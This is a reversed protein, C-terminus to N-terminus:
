LRIKLVFSCLFPETIHITQPAYSLKFLMASIELGCVGFAKGDSDILPVSCLMIKDSTGPLVSPPIWPITSLPIFGTRHHRFRLHYYPADTIDFEMEWQAHLSPPKKTCHKSSRPPNINPTFSNIINPEM